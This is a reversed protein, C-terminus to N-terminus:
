SEVPSPCEWAGFHGGGDQSFVTPNTVGEASPSLGGRGEEAGTGLRSGATQQQSAGTMGTLADLM